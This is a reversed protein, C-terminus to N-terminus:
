FHFFELIIDYIWPIELFRSLYESWESYNQCYCGHCAPSVASRVFVGCLCASLQFTPLIPTKWISNIKIHHISHFTDMQYICSATVRSSSHLSFFESQWQLTFADNAPGGFLACLFLIPSTILSVWSLPLKMQLCLAKTPRSFKYSSPDWQTFVQSNNYFIKFEGLFDIFKANFRAFSVQLSRWSFYCWSLQSPNSHGNESWNLWNKPSRQCRIRVSSIKNSVCIARNLAIATGNWTMSSMLLRKKQPGVECGVCVRKLKKCVIKRYCGNLRRPFRNSPFLNHIQM